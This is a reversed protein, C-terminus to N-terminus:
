LIMSNQVVKGSFTHSVTSLIGFPPISLFNKILFRYSLTIAERKSKQTREQHSLCFFGLYQPKNVWTGLAEQSSPSSDMFKLSTLAHDRGNLTRTETERIPRMEQWLLTKELYNSLFCSDAGLHFEKPKWEDSRFIEQTM